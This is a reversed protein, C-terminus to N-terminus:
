GLGWRRQQFLSVTVTIRFYNHIVRKRPEYRVRVVSIPFICYVKKSHFDISIAWACYVIPMSFGHRTCFRAMSKHLGRSNQWTWWQGCDNCCASPLSLNPCSTSKHKPDIIASPSLMYFPYYLIWLRRYGTYLHQGMSPPFGQNLFDRNQWYPNRRFSSVYEHNCRYAM